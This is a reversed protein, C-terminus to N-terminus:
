VQSPAPNNDTRRLAEMMAGLARDMLPTQLDQLVKAKQCRLSAAIGALTMEAMKIGKRNVFICTGTVESRWSLKGRSWSGDEVQWELWEGVELADATKQFDDKEVEVDSETLVVVEETFKSVPEIEAAELLESHGEMRGGRLAAIHCAQLEKFLVSSRHQDFSINVLGERVQKLLEPILKLLRQREAQEQKPQVSWILQEVVNCADSWAPSDEGERLYALLMVDRWGENLVMSVADPLHCEPAKCAEVYGNIIEVVRQRALALQEQGRKVQGIREEAVEAGRNERELYATFTENVQDFISLDDVFDTLICTVASEIQGYAGQASRDGDDDWAMGARALNNLLQRAPHNKGAFFSRDMVAVKIMPIQLRGLLAKMAEPLNEDGLVFDFLMGMVDLVDQEARPFRKIPKGELDMDLQKGLSHMLETQMAQIEHLNMSSNRLSDQQVQSLAGLLDTSSVEPLHQPVNSSTWNMGAIPAGSSRRAALLDGLVTLIETQAGAEDRAAPFLVEEHQPDRARQVSAAVPNRRVRQVIKPLIDAAVLVDNVDDYLGGVFSMVYRDFLKYVVLKVATEGSWQQLADRFGEAMRKPSLPNQDEELEVLGLISAFRMDLAFLERHFRNKAKSIVSNIALDEELDEDEVLSLEDVSVDVSSYSAYGEWFADFGSLQSQLYSQEVPERLKRLERMAEFYQTQLMDNASKDALGYLEDDLHEFLDQMLRPMTEVVQLRMSTVLRNYKADALRRRAGGASQEFSIVNDSAM